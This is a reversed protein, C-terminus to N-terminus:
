QATITLLDIKIFWRRAHYCQPLNLAKGRAEEKGLEQDRRVRETRPIARSQACDLIGVSSTLSSLMTIAMRPM